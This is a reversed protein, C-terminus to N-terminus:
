GRQRAKKVIRKKHRASRQAEIVQLRQFDDVQKMMDNMYSMRITDQVFALLCMPDQCEWFFWALVNVTKSNGEEDPPLKQAIQGKECIVTLPSSHLMVVATIQLPKDKPPVYVRKAHKKPCNRCQKAVCISGTLKDQITQISSALKKPKPKNNDRNTEVMSTAAENESM